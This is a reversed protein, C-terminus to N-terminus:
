AKKVLYSESPKLYEPVVLHVNEAKKWEKKLALFNAAIDPWNNERGVLAGDGIIKEDKAIKLDAIEVAELTGTAKGNDYTCTYVRKGRADTVVRCKENGAYLQLTGLTYLPLQRMACFVKAITMAIRVGTYSGPGESIVMQDIDEPQLKVEDMMAILKPFIEESQKKWCPEQVKAILQDDKILGLVLWTHSTDLCLTIM